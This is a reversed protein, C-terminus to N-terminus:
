PLILLVDGFEHWLYGTSAAEDYIRELYRSPMLAELLSLHSSGPEHWGTLMGDVAKVGRDATVVLETWGKGPHVRGSSDAVTEIARVVTTGVAIVRGGEGRLANIVIASASPVEYREEGPSEGEEYSSVGAHLVIPVVAIGLSVLRTVSESTFPRGASPMEASGPHTAFVTQYDAMSLKPGPAYRIPAGHAELLTDVDEAGEIAAIWLRPTRPSRALLHAVAGGALHIKQAEVDPGPQTGGDDAPLRVEVAWLGGPAPGAVHLRVPMGDSTTAELSAPVTASTNVVVVDGPQLHCEVNDFTDHQISGSARHAVM